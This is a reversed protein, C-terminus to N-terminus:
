ARRFSPRSCTSSSRSSGAGRMPRGGSRRACPRLMPSTLGCGGMPGAAEWQSHSLPKDRSRPAVSWTAPSDAWSALRVLQPAVLVASQRLASGRRSSASSTARACRSRPPLRRARPRRRRPCRRRQLRRAHPQQKRATRDVLLQARAARADTLSCYTLLLHTTFAYYTVLMPTRSLSFSARLTDEYLPADVIWVHTPTCMCVCMCVCM